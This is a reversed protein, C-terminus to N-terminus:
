NLEIVISYDAEFWDLSGKHNAVFNDIAKQLKETEDGDVRDVADEYSEELMSNIVDQTDYSPSIRKTGYVYKIGYEEEMYDEFDSMYGENYPYLESFMYEISESPVTEFTYHTAKNYRELEKIREKETRCDSCVTYYDTKDMPKDCVDCTKAPKELCCEDAVSKSLYSKGCCSCTWAKVEKSNM